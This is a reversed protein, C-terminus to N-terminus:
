VGLLGRLLRIAACPAGPRCRKSEKVNELFGLLSQQAKPTLSDFVELLKKRREDLSHVSYGPQSQEAVTQTKSGNGTALWEPNVGLSKAANFLYSADLSKTEGREWMSVANRSVGCARALAAQSIKAHTCRAWIIRESLLGM